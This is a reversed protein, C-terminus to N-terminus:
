VNVLGGLVTTNIVTIACGVFRQRMMSWAAQVEGLLFCAAFQTRYNFLLSWM